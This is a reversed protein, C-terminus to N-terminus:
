FLISACCWFPLSVARSLSAISRSSPLKSSNSMNTCCRQVLKPISFVLNSPSPTTVPIPVISPRRTYTDACSKVTVPPDIDSVIAIFILLTMSMATRLPTGNMPMLSEPPARIWSPIQERAPYPSIKSLFMRADPTIGCIEPM